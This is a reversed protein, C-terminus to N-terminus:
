SAAVPGPRAAAPALEEIPPYPTPVTFSIEPAPKGGQMATILTELAFMTCAPIAVTAAMLGRRVSLQGTKPLGDCGTFPLRLFKERVAEDRLEQFARRAGLAMDDNQAAVIDIAAKQSTTLQMWATVARFGSEETWKAKLMNLKINAPKTEQVGIVRHRAATYETPGQIYLVTGGGPLLAAFQRGQIRGVELHDTSVCFVPVSASRRLESLYDVERNLVVWGIGAATAARAVHPLGTGGVPELIIADPKPSSSSQIIELLQQSQTIADGDACIVRLDVGLRQATRLGAAAQEQQYDNEKTITSLVFS